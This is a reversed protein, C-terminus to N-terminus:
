SNTLLPEQVAALAGWELFYSCFRWGKDGYVLFRVIVRQYHFCGGVEPRKASVNKQELLNDKWTSM